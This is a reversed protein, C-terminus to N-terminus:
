FVEPAWPGGREAKTQGMLKVPVLLALIKPSSIMPNRFSLDLDAGSALTRIGNLRPIELSLIPTHYRM